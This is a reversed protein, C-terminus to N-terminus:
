SRRHPDMRLGSMRKWRMLAIQKAREEATMVRIPGYRRVLEDLVRAEEAADRM